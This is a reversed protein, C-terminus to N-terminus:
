FLKRSNKQQHLAIFNDLNAFFSSTKEQKDESPLYIHADKIDNSNISEFTSGTNLKNWYGNQKVRGLTQFM